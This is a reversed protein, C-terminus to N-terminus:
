YIFQDLEDIRAVFEDADNGAYFSTTRWRALIADASQGFAECASKIGGVGDDVANGMNAMVDSFSTAAEILHELYVTAFQEAHLYEWDAIKLDAM